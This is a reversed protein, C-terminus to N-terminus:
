SSQRDVADPGRSGSPVHSRAISAGRYHSFRGALAPRRLDVPPVTLRDAVGPLANETAIAALMAILMYWFIIIQDYYTVSFFSAVHSLVACGLTWALFRHSPTHREHRAGEGAIAFCRKLLWIFLGLALMGGRIGQNVFENVIDASYPNGPIGTEMWHATYGTGVLWWENVNSVASDILKSRYWGDGGVLESFRDILFWIPANMVMALGILSLVIAWRLLRMQGRALWCLFGVLTLIYASFAGSSQSTMVIVTAAVFALAALVRDRKSYVWLGVFLPMSTAGFTGALIPHKFPGQCRLKGDRFTTFMPVGGLISFPNRGTSAEFVFFLALPITMVACIKAVHVIDDFGRILARVLAYVGIADYIYGLREQTQVYRGDAIVYLLSSVLLWVLLIIDVGSPTVEFLERRLVIRIIGFLILIRILYLHLGGVTLSQGLTMYCGALLLPAIASRRPLVLLLIGLCLGVAFSTPTLAGIGQDM